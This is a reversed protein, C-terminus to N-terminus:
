ELDYIARSGERNLNCTSHDMQSGMARREAKSNCKNSLVKNGFCMQTRGSECYIDKVVHWVRQSRSHMFVRGIKPEEHTAKWLGPVEDAM